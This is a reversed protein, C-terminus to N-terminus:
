GYIDRDIAMFDKAADKTGRELLYIMYTHSLQKLSEVSLQRKQRLTTFLHKARAYQESDSDADGTMEMEFALYRTWFIESGTYQDAANAFVQRAEQRSGKVRWLIRALETVLAAKTSHDTSDSAIHNKLLQIAPESGDQRRTCNVWATIVEVNGPLSLLIAEYIAQAVTVRGHMEEFLAYQLRVEPRSIPAYICAARQYINRVEETKGQQSATWRAYRLWFEDYYAAAVVCREYLFAIRKHDGEAEEFQLYKRWNVLQADDLETVHFYPRKVEQEYTWRKTTEAQCRHFIELHHNDIRKRVEAESEAQHQGGESEVESKIQLLTDPPCLESVPRSSALQRFREFYRAYQHMPIHIIRNLIKFIREPSELRDELELYKDWFPHALFDLGM